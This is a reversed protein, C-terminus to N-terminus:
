DGSQFATIMQRKEIDCQEHADSKDSIMCLGSSIICSNEADSLNSICQNHADLVLKRQETTLNEDNYGQEFDYFTLVLALIGLVSVGISILIITKM